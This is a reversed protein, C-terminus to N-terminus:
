FSVRLGVRDPSVTLRAPIRVTAWEETRISSGIVLGLAAGGLAGLMAGGAFDYGQQNMIQCSVDFPNQPDKKAPPEVGM